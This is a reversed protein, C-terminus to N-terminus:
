EHECRRIIHQNKREYETGDDAVGQYTRKVAGTNSYLQELRIRYQAKGRENNVHYEKVIEDLTLAEAASEPLDQWLTVATDDVEVGSTHMAEVAEGLSAQMTSLQNQLKETREKLIDIDESGVNGGNPTPNVDSIEREVAVRILDSLTAHEAAEEVHQNWRQKQESTVRLAIRPKREEGM